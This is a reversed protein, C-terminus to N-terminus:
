RATSQLLQFLKQLWCTALRGQQLLLTSSSNFNTICLTCTFTQSVKPLVPVVSKEGEVVAVM